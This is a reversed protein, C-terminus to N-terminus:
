KDNWELTLLYCFLLDDVNKLNFGTAEQFKRIRYQLTNRHVYLKKATISVNGGNQYLNTITAQADPIARLEHKSKVILPNQSLQREFCYKLISNSISFVRRGTSQQVQFQFLEREKAFVAALADDDHWYQGVYLKSSCSFDTDLTQSIGLFDESEFTKSTQQEIAIAHERSIMFVDLLPQEFMSKFAELWKAPAIAPDHNIIQVQIIRLPKKITEKTTAKEGLFLRRFWRHGNALLTKDNSQDGVVLRLLEIERTTLEAAPLVLWQNGYPFNLYREDDIPTKQYKAAPFIAKIQGIEM